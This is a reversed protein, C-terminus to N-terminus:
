FFVSEGGTLNFSAGTTFACEGSAIWAVMAGVDEPTGLRGLPISENLKAFLEDGDVGKIEAEARISEITMSTLMAGPCICNVTVSFSALERALAQTM